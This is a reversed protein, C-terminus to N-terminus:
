PYRILKFIILTPVDDKFSFRKFEYFELIPFVSANIFYISSLEGPALPTEFAM